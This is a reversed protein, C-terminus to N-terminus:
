PVDAQPVIADLMPFEMPVYCDGYAAAGNENQQKMVDRTAPIEEAPIDIGVIEIQAILQGSVLEVLGSKNDLEALTDYYRMRDSQGITTTVALLKMQGQLTFIDTQLAEIFTTQRFILDLRSRKDDDMKNFTGRALGAEWNRSGWARYSSRLVNPLSTNFTNEENESRPMGTWDEGPTLLQTAVAQYSLARCNMVALREKAFFYNTFLDRSVAAEAVQLDARQQRDSLWQQGTLAVGVGIVVIVFDLAVAFWNQNKVHQTMRRLLM